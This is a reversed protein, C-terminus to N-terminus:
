RVIPSPYKFSNDSLISSDTEDLTLQIPHYPNGHTQGDWPITQQIYDLQLTLNYYLVFYVEDNENDTAVEDDGWCRIRLYKQGNALEKQEAQGIPRGNRYASLRMTSPNFELNEGMDLTCYVVQEYPHEYPTINWSPMVIVQCSDQCNYNSAVAWIYSEGEGYAVITDNQVKVVSDNESYMFLTADSVTDPYIYPALFFTDGEMVYVVDHAFTISSVQQTITDFEMEILGCGALFVSCLTAVLATFRHTFRHRM